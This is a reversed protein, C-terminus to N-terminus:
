KSKNKDKFLIEGPKVLGLKERAMREIYDIRKTQDLEENLQSNVYKLKSMQENYQKYQKNLGTITIQQRILIVVFLAAIGLLILSKKRKM